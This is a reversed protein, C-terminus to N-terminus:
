VVLDAPDFTVIAPGADLTTPIGPGHRSHEVFVGHSLEHVIVM